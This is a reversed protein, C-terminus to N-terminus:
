WQAPMCLFHILCVEMILSGIGKEEATSHYTASNVFPWDGCTIHVDSELDDVDDASLFNLKPGCSKSTHSCNHSANEATYYSPVNLTGCIFEPRYHHIKEMTIDAVHFLRCFNMSKACRQAYKFSINRVSFM